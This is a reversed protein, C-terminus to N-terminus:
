KKQNKFQEKENNQQVRYVVIQQILDKPLPQNLPFQVSGKAHKYIKIEEFHELIGAAGPYFGIHNKYGAFYVLPGKYKYAPMQYAICEIAEPASSKIIERIENLLLQTETPFESIYQDISQPIAQKDM